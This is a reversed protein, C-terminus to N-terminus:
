DLNKILPMIDKLYYVTAVLYIPEGEEGTYLAYSILIHNADCVVVEEGDKYIVSDIGKGLKKGLRSRERKSIYKKNGLLVQCMVLYHGGM